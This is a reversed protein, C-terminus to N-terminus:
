SLGTLTYAQLRINSIRCNLTCHTDNLVYDM